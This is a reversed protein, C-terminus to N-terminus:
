GRAELWQILRQHVPLMQGATLVTNSLLANQERNITIVQEAVEDTMEVLLANREELTLDGQKILDTFLVKLNVEKDSAAVGGSNDIADTNISIGKKAAEIRGRQSVGLNGGEVVVRTRLDRGDVRVADGAPDAIDAHSETSAKIYT